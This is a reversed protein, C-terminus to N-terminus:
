VGAPVRLVDEDEDGVARTDRVRGTIESGYHNDRRNSIM